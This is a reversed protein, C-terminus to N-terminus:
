SKWKGRRLGQAIVGAATIAATEARLTTDGLSVPLFGNKILYEAESQEFGGEPGIFFLVREAGDRSVAEDILFNKEEKEWVLLKKGEGANKALEEVGDVAASLSPTTIRGCQKVAERIIKEWRAQKKEEEKIKVVSRRTVVPIIEDVGIETLKELVLEMNEKKILAIAAAIKVASQERERIKGGVSVSIERSGRNVSRIVAKFEGHENNFVNISDGEKLRLVSTIHNFDEGQIVAADDAIKNVFFRYVQAM